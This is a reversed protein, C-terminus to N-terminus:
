PNPFLAESFGIKDRDARKSFKSFSKWVNDHQRRLMWDMLIFTSDLLLKVKFFHFTSFKRTSIKTVDKVMEKQKNYITLKEIWEVM